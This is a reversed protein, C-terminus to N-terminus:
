CTSASSSSSIPHALMQLGAFLVLLNNIRLYMAYFHPAHYRRVDACFALCLQPGTGDGYFPQGALDSLLLYSYGFLGVLVWIMRARLTRATAPASDQTICMFNVSVVCPISQVLWLTGQTESLGWISFVLWIMTHLVVYVTEFSRAAAVTLVLDMHRMWDLYVFPAFGTFLVALVPHTIRLLLVLITWLVAVIFGLLQFWRNRFLAKLSHPLPVLPQLQWTMHANVESQFSEDSLADTEELGTGSTSHAPQATPTYLPLPPADPLPPTSTTNLQLIDLSGSAIEGSVVSPANAPQYTLGTINRSSGFQGDRVRTVRRVRGENVVAYARTDWLYDDTQPWVTVFHGKKAANIEDARGVHITPRKRRCCHAWAQENSM